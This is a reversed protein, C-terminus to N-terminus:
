VEISTELLRLVEPHLWRKARLGEWDHRQILERVETSSVAELQLGEQAGDVLRVTIGVDVARPATYTLIREVDATSKSGPRLVCCVIRSDYWPERKMVDVTAWDDILKDIIRIATDSGMVEVGTIPRQQLLGGCQREVQERIRTCARYTSFDGLSCVDLWESDQMAVRCCETRRSFSFADSNLKGQVYSDSSPALFGGLIAWGARQLATRAVEMARIHQTHVPSFSGSMVAIALRDFQDPRLSFFRSRIKQTPVPESWHPSDIVM